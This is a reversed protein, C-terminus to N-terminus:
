ADGLVVKSLSMVETELHYSFRQVWSYLQYVVLADLADLSPM